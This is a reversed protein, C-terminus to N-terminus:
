GSRYPLTDLGQLPKAPKDELVRPSPGIYVLLAGRSGPAHRGMATM